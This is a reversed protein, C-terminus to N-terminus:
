INNPWNSGRPKREFSASDIKSFKAQNSGFGLDSISYGTKALGFLFFTEKGIAKSGTSKLENAVALTVLYLLGNGIAPLSVRGWVHLIDPVQSGVEQINKSSFGSM